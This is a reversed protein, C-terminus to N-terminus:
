NTNKIIYNAIKLSAKGEEENGILELLKISRNILDESSENLISKVLMESSSFAKIPLHTIDFYLGREEYYGKEDPIFLFIPRLLNAYDFFVSSYDTILADSACLLEQMDWGVSVDIIRGGYESSLREYDLMGSVNPHFRTLLICKKNFRKEFANLIMNPQLFDLQPKGNKLLESRYTPAYLILSADVVGVKNRVNDEIKEYQNILKDNRPTGCGLIEGDYKFARRFIKSSYENGSILLDINKSDRNAYKVYRKELKDEADAEILKLPTGHWTQIYFQKRKKKYFILKRCNDVWVKATYLHYASIFSENEVVKIYDPMLQMHKKADNMFWVIEIHPNTKHLEESIARPNDSYQKGYYSSFV